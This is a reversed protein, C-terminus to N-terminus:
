VVLVYLKRNTVYNSRYIDIETGINEGEPLHSSTTMVFTCEDPEENVDM